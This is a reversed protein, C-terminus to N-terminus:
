LFWLALAIAGGVFVGASWVFVFDRVPDLNQIFGSIGHGSTAGTSTTDSFM